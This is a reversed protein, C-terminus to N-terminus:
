WIKTVLNKPASKKTGPNSHCRLQSGQHPSTLKASATPPAKRLPRQPIRQRFATQLYQKSALVYGVPLGRLPRIDIAPGAFFCLSGLPPRIYRSCSQMPYVHSGEPTSCISVVRGAIFM